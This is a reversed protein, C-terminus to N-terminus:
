QGMLYKAYKERKGFHANISELKSINKTSVLSKKGNIYFGSLKLFKEPYLMLAGLINKDGYSLEREKEYGSFVANGYEEDWENKEMVKRLYYYIDILQIDYVCKDFSTTFIGDGFLYINHYTYSGHCVIGNELAYQRASMYDSGRLYCLAEQAQESYMKYAELWLREFGAKDKLKRMYNKVRKMNLIQKDYAEILNKSENPVCIGDCSVNQLKNHLKALNTGFLSVQAKDKLDCETGGYWDKVVYREGRFNRSSINGDKNLNYLDIYNFGGAVLHKMVNYEWMLKSASSKTERMMKFGKDTGLLLAGRARQTSNVTFNYQCFM